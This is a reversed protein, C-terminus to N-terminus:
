NWGVFQQVTELAEKFKGIEDSKLCVAGEGDTSVALSKTSHNISFCYGDVVVVQTLVSVSPKQAPPASETKSMRKGQAGIYNFVTNYSVELQEAIEKNSFGQNRLELMDNITVDLKRRM